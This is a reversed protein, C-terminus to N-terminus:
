DKFVTTKVYTKKNDQYVEASYVLGEISADNEENIVSYNVDPIEEYTTLGRRM